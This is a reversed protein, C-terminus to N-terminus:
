YLAEYLMAEDTIWPIEEDTHIVQIDEVMIFRFGNYAPTTNGPQKLITTAYVETPQELLSTEFTNDEQMLLVTDPAAPFNQPVQLTSSINAPPETMEGTFERAAAKSSSEKRKGRAKAGSASQERMKSIEKRRSIGTQRLFEQLIDLRVFLFITLALLIIALVGCAIRLYNFLQIRFQLQDLSM